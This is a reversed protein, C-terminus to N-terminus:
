AVLDVTFHQGKTFRVKDDTNGYVWADNRKTGDELTHQANATGLFTNLWEMGKYGTAGVELGGNNNVYFYVSGNRVVKGKKNTTHVFFANYGGKGGYARGVVRGTDQTQLHSVLKTLNTNLLVHNLVNVNSM